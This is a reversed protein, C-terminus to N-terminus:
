LKRTYEDQAEISAIEDPTMGFAALLSTVFPPEQADKKRYAAKDFWNWITRRRISAAKAVIEELLRQEENIKNIEKQVIVYADAKKM